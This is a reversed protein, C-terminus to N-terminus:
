EISPPLGAPIVSFRNKDLRLVKLAKLPKFAWPAISSEYLINGTLELVKLNTM